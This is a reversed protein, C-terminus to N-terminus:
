ERLFYALLEHGHEIKLGTSSANKESFTLQHVPRINKGYIAFPVPGRSHKKESVISVHDTVLMMRYDEGQMANMIRGVIKEDIQEIARVKKGPNGDHSAVDTAEVHVFAIDGQDMAAMAAEAKAAYDTELSGTASAVSMVRMGTHKAIGRILNVGTIIAGSKGSVDKFPRLTPRKGGGWLWIMNAPHEGHDARVINVDHHELIERSREMLTVILHAGTGCPLCEGINKGLSEDPSECKASLDMPGRYVMVCSAGMGPYFKIDDSGLRDNLAEVLAKSEITSIRGAYADLLCGDAVTVFNGRFATEGGALEIGMGAAELPGRQSLEAPPYGLLTLFGNESEPAASDPIIHVTGILGLLSMDDMHPTEAAELPTRGGLQKTPIDAM